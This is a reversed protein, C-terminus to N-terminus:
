RRVVGAPAGGLCLVPQLAVQGFLLLGVVGAALPQKLVVLLL